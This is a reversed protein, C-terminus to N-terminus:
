EYTCGGFLKIYNGQMYAGNSGVKQVTETKGGMRYGDVYPNRGAGVPLLERICNLLFFISLKYSLM